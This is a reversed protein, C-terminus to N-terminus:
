DMAQSTKFSVSICAALTTQVLQPSLGSAEEGSGRSAQRGVAGGGCVHGVVTEAKDIRRDERCYKVSTRPAESAAARGEALEVGEVVVM